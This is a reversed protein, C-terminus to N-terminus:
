DFENSHSFILYIDCFFVFNLLFFSFGLLLHVFLCIQVNWKNLIRNQITEDLVPGLCKYNKTIMSNRTQKLFQFSTCSAVDFTHKNNEKLLRFSPGSLSLYHFLLIVFLYLYLTQYAILVLLFVFEFCLLIFICCFYNLVFSFHDTPM